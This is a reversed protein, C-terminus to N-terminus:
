QFTKMQFHSPTTKKGTAKKSVDTKLIVASGILFLQRKHQRHPHQPKEWYKDVSMQEVIGRPTAANTKASVLEFM